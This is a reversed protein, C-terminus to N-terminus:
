SSGSSSQANNHRNRSLPFVHGRQRSTLDSSGEWVLPRDFAAIMLGKAKAVRGLQETRFCTKFHSRLCLLVCISFQHGTVPIPILIHLCSSAALTSAGTKVGDNLLAYYRGRELSSGGSFRRLLYTPEPKVAPVEIMGPLKARPQEFYRPFFDEFQKREEVSLISQQIFQVAVSVPTLPPKSISASTASGM